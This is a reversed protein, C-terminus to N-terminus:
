QDVVFWGRNSLSESLPAPYVLDAVPSGITSKERRIGNRKNINVCITM